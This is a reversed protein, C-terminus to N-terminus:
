TFIVIFYIFQAEDFNFIKQAEFSVLLFFSFAIWVILIELEVHLSNLLTGEVRVILLINFLSFYGVVRRSDMLSSLVCTLNSGWINSLSAFLLLWLKSFSCLNLLLFLSFLTPFGSIYNVFQKHLSQSCTQSNFAGLSGLRWLETFNVELFEVLNECYMLSFDRGAEHLPLPFSDM